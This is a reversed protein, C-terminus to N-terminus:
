EFSSSQCCRKRQLIERKAVGNKIYVRKTNHQQQHQEDRFVFNDIQSRHRIM